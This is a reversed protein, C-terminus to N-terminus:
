WGRGGRSSIRSPRSSTPIRSWRSSPTGAQRDEQDERPQEIRNALRRGRRRVGRRRGAAGSRGRGAHRARERGERGERRPSRAREGPRVGADGRRRGCGRSRAIAHGQKGSSRNAIYRVPDIPEHTPGSTVLVRVGALAGSNAALLAQSPPSSRWRSPWAAPAPRAARPWRAPTPASWHSATPWSSRSIAGRRRQQEVDAPEDRARAPDEQRDRAAGRLRSRRRPREGDEGDPRRHGARCRRREGRPRAPHPRRRVRVAADFLDTFPHEGALAGVSLPTIFKQAAETM